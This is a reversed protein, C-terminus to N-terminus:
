LPNGREDIRAMRRVDEPALEALIPKADAKRPELPQAALLSTRAWAGWLMGAGISAMALWAWWAGGWALGVVLLPAAFRVIWLAAVRAQSYAWLLVWTIIAAAVVVPHLGDPHVLAAALPADLMVLMLILATTPLPTRREITAIWTGVSPLALAGIATAALAMTAVFWGDVPRSFATILAIAGALLWGHRRAWRSRGVTLGAVTVVTAVVLATAALRASDDEIALRGLVLLGAAAVGSAALGFVAFAPPFM